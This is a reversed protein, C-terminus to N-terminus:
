GEMLPHKTDRDKISPHEPHECGFSKYYEGPCNECDIISGPCVNEIFFSLKESFESM